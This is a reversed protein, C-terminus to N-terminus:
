ELYGDNLDAHYKDGVTISYLELMVNDLLDGIEENSLKFTNLLEYYVNDRDVLLECNNKRYKILTKNECVFYLVTSHDTLTTSSYSFKNIFWKKALFVNIDKPKRFEM